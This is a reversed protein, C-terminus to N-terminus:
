TQVERRRLLVLLFTSCIGLVIFLLVSLSIAYSMQNTENTIASSGFATRYILTGLVDTTGAPSGIPGALVYVIDFTRFIDIFTLVTLSTFAPALLPFTIRWFSQWGSAGDIEAAERLEHPINQLGALYIVIAWGLTHWAQVAIITPLAWTTDSMWAKAMFGLGMDKLLPNLFGIHPSLMLSWIFGVAVLSIIVPMFFIARYLEVGRPRSDLQAALFLGVTNQFIFIAVFFILNHWAARYVDPSHLAHNFNDFGVFNMDRGIGNWDYVSLWFASITPYIVFIGYVLLAPLVFLLHSYNRLKM